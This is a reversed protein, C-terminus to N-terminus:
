SNEEFFSAAADNHPVQHRSYVGRPTTFRAEALVHDANGLVHIERGRERQEVELSGLVLAAARKQGAFVFADDLPDDRAADARGIAEHSRANDASILALVAVRPARELVHKPLARVVSIEPCSELPLTILVHPFDFTMRRRAGACNVFTELVRTETVAADATEVGADEVVGILEAILVIGEERSVITGRNFTKGGVFRFPNVGVGVHNSGSM